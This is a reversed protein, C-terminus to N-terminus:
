KKEPRPEPVEPIQQFKKKHKDLEKNENPTLPRICCGGLVIILILLYKM